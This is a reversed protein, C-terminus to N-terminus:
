ESAEGHRRLYKVLALMRSADDNVAGLAVNCGACLLARVKGTKHCHDVHFVDHKSGTSTSGCAACKAGQEALMEEYREITIGYSVILRRNRVLRAHRAHNNRYWEAKTQRAREQNADAWAKVRAARAARKEPSQTALKYKTLRAVCAKCRKNLYPQGKVKQLYFDSHPKEVQCVKCTQTEM